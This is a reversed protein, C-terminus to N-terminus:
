WDVFPPDTYFDDFTDM